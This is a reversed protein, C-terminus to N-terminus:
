QNSPQQTLFGSQQSSSSEQPMFQQMAQQDGIINSITNQDAFITDMLDRLDQPDFDKQAVTTKVTAIKENMDSLASLAEGVDKGSKGARSIDKAAKVTFKNLSTLSSKVNQLAKIVGEYQSADNLKSFVDDQLTSLADDIEGSAASTQAAQLAAKIDAIAAAYSAMQGSVDFKLRAAAKATRAYAADLKKIETTAQKLIRPMQAIQDLKQSWDRLSDSSSMLSDMAEQVGDEDASSAALVKQLAANAASLETKLEAPVVAGQKEASSVRTAFQKLMSSFQKLQSKQQSFQQKARAADAASQQDGDDSQSGSDMGQSQGNKQQGGMQNGMQGGQPGGFQTGGPQNGPQNGMQGQQGQQMNGPQGMMQGGSPPQMMGQQGSPMQGGSPPQMQGQQGGSPPPMGGQSPPPMPGASQALAFGVEQSVYLTSVGFVVALFLVQKPVSCISRVWKAIFSM